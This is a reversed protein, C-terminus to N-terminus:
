NTKTVSINGLVLNIIYLQIQFFSLFKLEEYLISLGCSGTKEDFEGEGGWVAGAVSNKEEAPLPLPLKGRSQSSRTSGIITKRTKGTTSFSLLDRCYISKRAITAAVHISCLVAVYIAGM